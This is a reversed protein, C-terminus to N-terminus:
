ALEAIRSVARQMNHHEHVAVVAQTSLDAWDQVTAIRDALTSPDRYPFIQADANSGLTARMASNSTFPICGAAMGELVAKDLGGRPTCGVIIDAWRYHTPMDRYAVFGFFHVVGSVGLRATLDQLEKTYVHDSPMVARGVIRVELAVQRDQVLSAARILTALDKIPSLRGVSLVHLARNGPPLRNAVTFRQTDIGHGVSIIKSSQIRLSQADATVLKDCLALALRLRMTVSRHLYWLILHSRLVRSFPWACIAFIPSMHCFVAGGRPTLRWLLQLASFAQRWRPVGREKGLSYVQINPPLEYSGVGLAIVSVQEYHKSFERLWGVFFGLLDDADDVKQTIVLLRSM